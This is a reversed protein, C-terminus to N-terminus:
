EQLLTEIDDHAEDLLAKLRAIENESESIISMIYDTIRDHGDCHGDPGYEIMLHAVKGDIEDRNSETM